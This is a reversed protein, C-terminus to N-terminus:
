LGEFDNFEYIRIPTGAPSTKVYVKGDSFWVSAIMSQRRKENAKKVLSKRFFTLNENIFIKKADVRSASMANQFIDSM